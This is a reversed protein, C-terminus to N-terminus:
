LYAAQVVGGSGRRVEKGKSKLARSMTTEGSAVSGEVDNNREFGDVEGEWRRV